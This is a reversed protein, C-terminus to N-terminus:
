VIQLRPRVAAETRGVPQGRWGAASLWEAVATTAENWQGGAVDICAETVDHTSSRSHATAFATFILQVLPALM